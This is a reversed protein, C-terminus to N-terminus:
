PTSINTKLLHNCCTQLCRFDISEELFERNQLSGGKKPHVPYAVCNYISYSVEFRETDTLCDLLCNTVVAPYNESGPLLKNSEAHPIQDFSMVIIDPVSVGLHNAATRLLNLDEFNDVLYSGAYKGLLEKDSYDALAYPLHSLQFKSLKFNKM